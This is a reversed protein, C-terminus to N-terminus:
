EKGGHEAALMADALQWARHPINSWSVDARHLNILAPLAAAAFKARRKDQEVALARLAAQAEAVYVLCEPESTPLNDALERLGEPSIDVKM